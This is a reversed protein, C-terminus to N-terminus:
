AASFKMLKLADFNQIGGGVRKTVYFLVYPKATFPDRLVRVGARDVILYARQFDGFAISFSGAAADPMDEMETVPYGFLSSEVSSNEPQWIYQNQSDKLKRVASLTKRNMVFRAGPRFHGKLSYILDLLRDAPATSAFGGDAGSLIFGVKDWAHSADAVTTYALLGKPRNVGDGSVFATREAAAFAQEAEDAIWQDLDVFSDELLTPTAALNAYLEATPFDIAVLNAAATQTRAGTEAAWGNTSAATSVPKRFVSAGTVRVSAIQRMPSVAALRTEILRDLEPPAVFGADAAAGTLANPNGAKLELRSYGSEDGRRLYAGWASKHESEQVRDGSLGPRRQALALRDIAAKQESLARDIRDVKEDLLVDGRGREIASLRQDNAAKFDEFARLLAGEAPKPPAMKTEKTM